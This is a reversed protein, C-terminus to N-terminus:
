RFAAYVRQVCRFVSSCIFTFPVCSSFRIFLISQWIALHYLFVVTSLLQLILSIVDLGVFYNGATNSSETTIADVVAFIGQLTDSLKLGILVECVWCVYERCLTM